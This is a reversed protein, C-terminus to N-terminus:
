ECKEVEGSVVYVPCSFDLLRDSLFDDLLSPLLYKCNILFVALSVDINLSEFLFKLVVDILRLYSEVRSLNFGSM